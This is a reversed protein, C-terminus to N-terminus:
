DIWCDRLGNPTTQGSRTLHGPGLLELRNRDSKTVVSAGDQDLRRTLLLEFAPM